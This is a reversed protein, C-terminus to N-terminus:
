RPEDILDARQPASAITVLAVGVRSPQSSRGIVPDARDDDGEVVCRQRRDDIVGLRTTREDDDTSAGGRAVRRRRREHEGGVSGSVEIGVPEIKSGHGAHGHLVRGLEGPQELDDGDLRVIGVVGAGLVDVCERCASGNGIHDGVGIDVHADEVTERDHM